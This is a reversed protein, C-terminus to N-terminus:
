WLLAIGNSSLTYLLRIFTIGSVILPLFELSVGDQSSATLQLRTCCIYDVGINLLQGLGVISFQMDTM